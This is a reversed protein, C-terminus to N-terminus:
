KSVNSDPNHAFCLAGTDLAHGVSTHERNLEGDTEVKM